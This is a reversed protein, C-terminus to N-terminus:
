ARRTPAAVAIRVDLEGAAVRRLMDRAYAPEGGLDRMLSRTILLGDGPRGIGRRRPHRLHPQTRRRLHGAGARPRAECGAENEAVLKETDAAIADFIRRYEGQLGRRAEETKQARSLAIIADSGAVYKTWHDAFAEYVRKEDASTILPEYEKRMKDVRWTKRMEGELRDM